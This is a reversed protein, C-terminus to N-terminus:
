WGIVFPWASFYVCCAPYRIIEIHRWIYRPSLYAHVTGLPQMIVCVWLIVPGLACCTSHGQGVDLSEQCGKLTCWCVSSKIRELCHKANWSLSKVLISYLAAKQWRVFASIWCTGLSVELSIIKSTQNVVYSWDNNGSADTLINSVARKLVFLLDFM